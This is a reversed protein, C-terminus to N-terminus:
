RCCTHITDDRHVKMSVLNLSEEVNRNVVQIGRVDDQGVKLRQM